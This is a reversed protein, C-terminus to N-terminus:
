HVWKGHEIRGAQLWGCLRCEKHMPFGLLPERIPKGYAHKGLTLM